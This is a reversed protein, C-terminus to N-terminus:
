FVYLGFINRDWYPLYFSKVGKLILQGKAPLRNCIIDFYVTSFKLCLNMNCWNGKLISSSSIMGARLALSVSSSNLENIHAWSPEPIWCTTYTVFLIHEIIKLLDWSHNVTFEIAQDFHKFIALGSNSSSHRMKTM